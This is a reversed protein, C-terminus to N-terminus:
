EGLRGQPLLAENGRPPTFDVQEELLDIRQQLRAQVRAIRRATEDDLQVAAVDSYLGLLQPGPELRPPRSDGEREVAHLVTIAKEPREEACFGPIVLSRKEPPELIVRGEG